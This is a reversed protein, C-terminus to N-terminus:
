VCGDGSSGVEGSGGSCVCISCLSMVWVSGSRQTVGGHTAWWGWITGRREEQLRELM